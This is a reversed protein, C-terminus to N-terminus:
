NSVSSCINTQEDKKRELELIENKLIAYLIKSWTTIKFPGDPLDHGRFWTERPLSKRSTCAAGLYGDDINRDIAIINYKYDNTYINFQIKYEFGDFSTQGQDCVIDIFNDINKCDSFILPIWEKMLLDVKNIRM